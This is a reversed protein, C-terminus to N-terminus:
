FNAGDLIQSPDGVNDADTSWAALIGASKIGWRLYEPCQMVCNSRLGSDDRSRIVGLSGTVATPVVHDITIPDDLQLAGVLSAIGAMNAAVDFVSSVDAADAQTTSDTVASDKVTLRVFGFTAPYQRYDDYMASDWGSDQTIAYACVTFIDGARLGLRSLYESVKESGSVPSFVAQMVDDDNASATVSMYSQILSGTAIVYPGPVAAVAGRRVVAGHQELAPLQEDIDAQIRARLANLNRRMFEAQNDAVTGKGEFSHDLIAKGARYAQAVTALIARQYLMKDTNPNAIKRVRVRSVQKGNRRYMTIDGVSRRATGLFLNDIAM